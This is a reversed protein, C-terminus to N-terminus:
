TRTAARVSHDLLLRYEHLILVMVFLDFVTLVILGLSHTHSYRYFQNGIFAALVALPPM